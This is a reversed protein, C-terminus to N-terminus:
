RRAEMLVFRQNTAAIRGIQRLMAEHRRPAVLWAGRRAALAAELEEASSFPDRESARRPDRSRLPQCRAPSGYSAIVAFYGYDDTGVLLEPAGLLRAERGIDLEADRDGFGDRDTIYPRLVVGGALELAAALALVVRARSGLLSWARILVDASFLAVGFWIPLLAREAHHTPVGGRVSGVILFLLLAALCAFLRSYPARASGLELMRTAILAVIGLAALEPECRLLALPYWVLRALLSQEPGGLAARYATVREVFFLADGHVAVGHALWLLPAAIAALVPLWLARSRRAEAGTLLAFTLAAPWAEYRSLCACFLAVAGALRLPHEKTALTAAGFVILGATLAEPLAAVGLLASYPFASALLAGAFAGGRSAGLTRAAFWALLTSSAGLLLATGRAVSLGPGFLAHAFGHLYFPFPLWSTGSPDLRPAEALSQAIVIRSYDDDSLARFGSALVLAGLALKFLVLLLAM